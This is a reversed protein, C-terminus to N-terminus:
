GETVVNGTRKQTGWHQWEGQIAKRLTRFVVVLLLWRYIIRQPIILLLKWAKEGEMYFAVSALLLDALMFIGYYFGIEAANGTLLGLLMLVDAL